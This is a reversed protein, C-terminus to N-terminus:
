MQFRHDAGVRTWSAAVIPKSESFAPYFLSARRLLARVPNQDINQLPGIGYLLWRGVAFCSTEAIM